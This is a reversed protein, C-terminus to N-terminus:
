DHYGNDAEKLEKEIQKAEALARFGAAQELMKERQRAEIEVKTTPFPKDIYPAPTTGSKAFAHLVPSAACIAQYFYM